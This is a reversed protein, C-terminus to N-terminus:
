SAEAALAQRVALLDDIARRKMAADIPRRSFRAIEFLDTLSRTPVLPVMLRQLAEEIYELPTASPRRPLGSQTLAREMRVYARIIARRPDPESEIGEITGDLARVLEDRRPEGESESPRHRGGFLVVGAATGGAVVALLTWPSPTPPGGSGTTAGSAGAPGGATGTGAGDTRNARILAIPIALSAMIALLAITPLWWTKRIAEHEPEDPDDQPRRTLHTVVFVLVVAAVGWAAAVFLNLVDSTATSVRTVSSTGAGAGGVSVGSAAAAVVALLVIVM